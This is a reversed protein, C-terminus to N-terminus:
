YDNLTYLESTTMGGGGGMCGKYCLESIICAM